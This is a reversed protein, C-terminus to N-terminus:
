FPLGFLTFVVDLLEGVLPSVGEALSILAGFVGSVFADVLAAIQDAFGM